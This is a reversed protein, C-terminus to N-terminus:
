WALGPASLFHVPDLEHIEIFKNRFNKFVNALLLTDSQLYVDHYNDLNKLKFKKFVKNAHRYDIDTINKMNLSGYFAEKEPLSTEDFREWSDMYEYPYIGKRLLLIFKSIDKNCLEYTNKFKNVLDHEFQKKHYSNCQFCKFLKSNDKFRLYYLKNHCDECEYSFINKIEDAALNDVLRSLSSSMFRFSDIFRIKHSKNVIKYNGDKDIKTIKREIPVSFTIYKKTNEWANM